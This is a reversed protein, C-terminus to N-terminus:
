IEVSEEVMNLYKEINVPKSVNGKKYNEISKDMMRLTRKSLESPDVLVRPKLVLTGDNFEKIHYFNFKSDRITLRRKSDLKADYQRIIKEM